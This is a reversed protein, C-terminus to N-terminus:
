IGAAEMLQPSPAPRFPLAERVISPLHRLAEARALEPADGGLTQHPAPAARPSSSSLSSLPRRRVEGAMTARGGLAAGRKLQLLLAVVVVAVAASLSPM